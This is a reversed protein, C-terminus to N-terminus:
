VVLDSADIGHNAGTVFPVKMFEQYGQLLNDDRVVESDVCFTSFNLFVLNDGLLTMFSSSILSMVGADRLDVIPVFHSLKLYQQVIVCGCIALPHTYWFVQSLKM